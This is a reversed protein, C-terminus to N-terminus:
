RPLGHEDYLLDGHEASSVGPAVLAACRDAIARMERRRADGDGVRGKHEQIPDSTADNGRCCKCPIPDTM